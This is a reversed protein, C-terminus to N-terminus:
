FAGESLIPDDVLGLFGPLSHWQYNKLYEIAKLWEKKSLGGERWKPFVYDLANLHIYASLVMLQEDSKIEIAKYKGQFLHGKRDKLTNIYMTIATGFRQMFQGLGKDIHSTLLFHYHNKMISYQLIDVFKEGRSSIERTNDLINYFKENNVSSSLNNRLFSFAKSSNTSNALELALKIREAVVSDQFLNEGLIIKNFVHFHM